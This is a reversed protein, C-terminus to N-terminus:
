SLTSRYIFVKQSDVKWSCPLTAEKFLEFLLCFGSFCPERHRPCMQVTSVFFRIGSRYSLHEKVIEIVHPEFLVDNWYVITAQEYQLCRSLKAEVVDGCLMLLRSRLRRGHVNEGIRAFRAVDERLEIGISRQVTTALAVHVVINGLGAEIDLFVDREDIPGIERLEDLLKTIGQPLIEGANRHPANCDRTVVIRPVNDDMAHVITEVGTSDGVTDRGSMFADNPSKAALSPYLLYKAAPASSLPSSTVAAPRSSIQAPTLGTPSPTPTTRAPSTALTPGAPCTAPTSRASCPAPASPSFSAAPASPPPTAASVSRPSNGTTTAPTAGRLRRTIAPPRGRPRRVQSSVQPLTDFRPGM